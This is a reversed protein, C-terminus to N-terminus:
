SSINTGLLDPIYYAASNRGTLMQHEASYQNLGVPQLVKLSLQRWRCGSSLIFQGYNFSTKVALKGGDFRPLEVRTNVDSTVTRNPEHTSFPRVPTSRSTGLSRAAPPVYLTQPRGRNEKGEGQEEVSATAAASFLKKPTIM